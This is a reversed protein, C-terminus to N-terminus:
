TRVTKGKIWGEVLICTCIYMSYVIEYTYIMCYMCAIINYMHILYMCKHVHAGLIM